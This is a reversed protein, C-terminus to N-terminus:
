ERRANGVFALAIETPRSDTQSPPLRDPLLHSRWHAQARRRRPGPLHHGDDGHWRPPPATQRYLVFTKGPRSVVKEIQIDHGGTNKMGAFVALVTEKAFDVAPLSAKDGGDAVWIKEFEAASQFAHNEAQEHGGSWTLTRLIQMLALAIATM